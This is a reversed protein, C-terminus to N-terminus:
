EEYGHSNTVDPLSTESSSAPDKEPFPPSDPEQGCTETPSAPATKEEIEGVSDPRSQLIAPVAPTEAEPVPKKLSFVVGGVFLIGGFALCLVIGRWGTLLTSAVGTASSFRVIAQDVKQLIKESVSPNRLEPPYASPRGKLEQLRKLFSSCEPCSAVHTDVTSDFSDRDILLDQVQECEKKLAAM